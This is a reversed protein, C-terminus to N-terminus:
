IAESVLIRRAVFQGMYDYGGYPSQSYCTEMNCKDNACFCWHEYIDYKDFDHPLYEGVQSLKSHSGLGLHLHQDDTLFSSSCGRGVGLTRTRGTHKDTANLYFIFCTTRCSQLLDTDYDRRTCEKDSSTLGYNRKLFFHRWQWVVFDNACSYCKFSDTLNAFFLLFLGIFLM